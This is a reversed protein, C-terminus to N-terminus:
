RVGATTAPPRLREDPQPDLEGPEAGEVYYLEVAGNSKVQHVDPTTQIREFAARDFRFGRYAVLERERDLRTVVLYHDAQLKPQLEDEVDTGWYGPGMIDRPVRSFNHDVEWYRLPARRIGTVVLDDQRHEFVSGYGDLQAETAHQNYKFIYPSPFVTVLSVAIVVVVLVVVAPRLDVPLDPGDVDRLLLYLSVAGMLAAVTLGFGVHRFFYHSTDDLFVLFFFPSLALGSFGFYVVFLRVDDSRRRWLVSLLVGASVLVYAAGVSYIKWFLETLSTGLSQTSQQRDGVIEGAQTEQAFLTQYNDGLQEFHDFFAQHSTSWLFFVAAVVLVHVYIHRTDIGRVQRRRHWFQVTAIAALVIIVNVAVQPHFFVVAQGALVVVVGHASWLSSAGDSTIHRLVAYAVMPFFLMAMSYPHFFLVTNVNTIPFFLVASLVGVALARRDQTYTYTAMPTFVLFTLAFVFVVFVMARRLSWGVAHSLFISFTHTGPYVLDVFQMSGANMARTWALHVLSDATGYFYYGRLLPMAAVTAAAAIALVAAVSGLRTRDRYVWVSVACAFGVGLAVWVALPTAAYLDVEYRAAPNLYALVLAVTTAFFGVALVLKLAVRRRDEGMTAPRGGSSEQGSM